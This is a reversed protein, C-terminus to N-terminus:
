KVVGNLLSAAGSYLTTGLQSVDLPSSVLFLALGIAAAAITVSAFMPLQPSRREGGTDWAPEWSVTGVVPLQFAEEVERPSVFIGSIAGRLYALAVGAGLAALAVLMVYLPRNPGSPVTPVTPARTVQYKNAVDAGDAAQSMRTAERRAVLQQYNVHLVEDARQLDAWQAQIEPPVVVARRAVARRARRVATAPAPAGTAAAATQERNRAAVALDLQRKTSVVDPYQDTYQTRLNSLQAQLAAVQQATASPAAPAPRAATPQIEATDGAYGLDAVAPANALMNAVAPHQARFNLMKTQSDSLMTEYSAIQQDLFRGADDLEQRNHDVTTSIFTELVLKVVNRARVPDTDGYHFEVFGDGQDPAVHIASRLHTVAKTLSTKSSAAGPNLQRVVRELNADDLLTRQAVEAAGDHDGALSVGHTAAALPTDKNVYVQAWADYVNPMQLIYLASACLVTVVTIAFTWRFYWLRRVEDYILALLTTIM